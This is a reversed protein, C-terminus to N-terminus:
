HGEAILTAAVRAITDMAKDSAWMFPRTVKAGEDHHYAYPFGTQTKANTYWTIKDRRASVNRGQSVPIMSNRLKGSDQLIKNGGRKRRIMQMRYRPSWPAWRGKPGQQKSFHGIIDRFVIPSMAKALDDRQADSLRSSMKNLISKINIDRFVAESM